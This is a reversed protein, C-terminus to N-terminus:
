PAVEESSNLWEEFTPGALIADRGPLLAGQESLMLDPDDPNSVPEIKLPDGRRSALLEAVALLNEERPGAIEAFPREPSDPVFEAATAVDVLVEAVNRAAVMQTRMRPVYAVDGQTGWGVLVEVFEHFQAARVIRTPIPGALAAREHALKAASYGGVFPDIGIISIVVMRQVGAREGAAHLNRTATVFYETAEQEDASPTTAVDIICDVDVLAAALGERTVVDVGYRRAIPLADHGREELVAVVHRGVRGTAGAVAVRM